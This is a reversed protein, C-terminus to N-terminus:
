LKSEESPCDFTKRIRECMRDHMEEAQHRMQLLYKQNSRNKIKEKQEELISASSRSFGTWFLM